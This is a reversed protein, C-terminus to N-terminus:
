SWPGLYAGANYFFTEKPAIDLHVYGEGKSFDGGLVINPIGARFGANCIKRAHQHDRAEIDIALGASHVSLGHLHPSRFGQIVFLDGAGYYQLFAQLVLRMDKPYFNLTEIRFLHHLQASDFSQYEKFDTQIAEIIRGKFYSERKGEPPVYRHFVVKGRPMVTKAQTQKIAENYQNEVLFLGGRKKIQKGM